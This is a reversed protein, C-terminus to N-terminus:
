ESILVTSGPPAEKKLAGYLSTLVNFIAPAHIVLLYKARLAGHLLPLYDQYTLLGSRVTAYDDSRSGHRVVLSLVSISYGAFIEFAPSPHGLSIENCLIHRHVSVADVHRAVSSSNDASDERTILYRYLPEDIVAVSGAAKWFMKYLFDRDELLALATDFRDYGILSRLFVHAFPFLLDDCQLPGDEPSASPRPAPVMGIRRGDKDVQEVPFAMMLPRSLDITKALRRLAGAAVRDDGDCFWVYRGKAAGIGANRASSVGGNPKHICHVRNDRAAFEDCLGPSGDTSGDDILILEFNCFDQALISDVCGPLYEAINYVPVILSFIPELM